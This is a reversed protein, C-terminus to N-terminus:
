WVFGSLDFPCFLIHSIQPYLALNEDRLSLELDFIYGGTDCVMLVDNQSPPGGRTIAPSPSVPDKRKSM